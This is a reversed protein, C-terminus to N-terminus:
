LKKNAPVDWGVKVSGTTAGKADQEKYEINIKAFSLSVQDTPVIDSHGSGGQQYSTVFVDKMDYKLYSEKTGGAKCCDLIAEKIHQGSACALMLKASAKNTKMVFHVDQVNVKGAGHGGTGHGYTANSAGWSWSELEIWGKHKHDSSSGDIGDIKLFFDSDAM